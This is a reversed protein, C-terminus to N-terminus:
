LVLLSYWTNCTKPEPFDWGSWFLSFHCSGQSCFVVTSSAHGGLTKSFENWMRVSPLYIFNILIYSGYLKRFLSYDMKVVHLPNDDELGPQLPHLPITFAM